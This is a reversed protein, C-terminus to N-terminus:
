SYLWILSIVDNRRGVSEGQGAATLWRAAFGLGAYVTSVQFEEQSLLTKGARLNCKPLVQRAVLPVDSVAPVPQLVQLTMGRFVTKGTHLNGKPLLQRAVLPLDSVAPVLPLLILLLGEM